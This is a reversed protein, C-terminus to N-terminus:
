RYSDQGWVPIYPLAKTRLYCFQFACSLALDWPQPLHLLCLLVHYLFILFHSSCCVPAELKPAPCADLYKGIDHFGNVWREAGGSLRSILPGLGKMYKKAQSSCSRAYLQSSWWVWDASSLYPPFSCSSMWNRLVKPNPSHILLLSWSQFWLIRRDMHNTFDSCPIDM